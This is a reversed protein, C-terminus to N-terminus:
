QNDNDLNITFPPDYRQPERNIIIQTPPPAVERVGPELGNQIRLREEEAARIASPLEANAGFAFSFSGRVLEDNAALIAWDATYYTADQLSPLQWVFEQDAMPNYRFDIDVWDRQATHLTLKVLRVNSPFLLQLENPPEPLIADNPPQTATQSAIAAGDHSYAVQHGAHQGYATATLLSSTLFGGTLLTTLALRSVM